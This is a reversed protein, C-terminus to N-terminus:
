SFDEYISAKDCASKGSQGVLIYIKEGETLNFEANVFAGYSEQKNNLGLGGGAGLSTISFFICHGVHLNNFYYCVM